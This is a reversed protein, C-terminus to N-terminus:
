GSSEGGSSPWTRGRKSRVPPAVQLYAWDICRVVAGGRGRLGVACIGGRRDSAPGRREVASPTGSGVAGHCPEDDAGLCAGVLVSLLVGVRGLRALRGEGSLDSSCVDSSWDSFRM